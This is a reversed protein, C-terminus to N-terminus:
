SKEKAAEAAVAAPIKDRDIGVSRAVDRTPVWGHGFSDKGATTSSARQEILRNIEEQEMGMEERIVEDPVGLAKMERVLEAMKLIGHKGRARNQRVTAAIHEARTKGALRVVPVLGGTMARVAPDTRGLTWRHFGDVIQGSALATIPATWGDSLLSLRLLDFEAQFVHNPNYDNAHLTEPDVWELRGIPSDEPTTRALAAAPVAKPTPTKKAM